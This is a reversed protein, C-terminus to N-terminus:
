QVKVAEDSDIWKVALDIISQITTCLNRRESTAMQGIREQGWPQQVSSIKFHNGYTNLVSFTLAFLNTHYEEM